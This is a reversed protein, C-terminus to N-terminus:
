HSNARVTKVFLPVIGLAKENSSNRPDRELQREVRNKTRNSNGSQMRRPTLYIFSKQSSWSVCWSRDSNRRQWHNHTEQRTQWPVMRLQTRIHTAFTFLREMRCANFRYSPKSSNRGNSWGIEGNARKWAELLIDSRWWHWQWIQRLLWRSEEDLGM